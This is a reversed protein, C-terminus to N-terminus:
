YELQQGDTAAKLENASPQGGHGIRRSAYFIFGKRLSSIFCVPGIEFLM